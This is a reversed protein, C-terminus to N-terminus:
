APECDVENGDDSTLPSNKTHDPLLQVIKKEEYIDREVSPNRTQM